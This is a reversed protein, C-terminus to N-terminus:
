TYLQGVDPHVTMGNFFWRSCSGSRSAVELKRGDVQQAPQRATQNQYAVGPGLYRPRGPTIEMGDRAPAGALQDSTVKLLQYFRRRNVGLAACARTTKM